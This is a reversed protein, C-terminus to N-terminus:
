AIGAALFSIPDPGFWLVMWGRIWSHISSRKCAALAIWKFCPPLRQHLGWRVNFAGDDTDWFLEGSTLWFRSRIWNSSCRWRADQSPSLEHLRQGYPMTLNWALRPCSFEPRHAILKIGLSGSSVTHEDILSNHYMESELVQVVRHMTPRDEPSSSVCQIAVSLLADLSELQVGECNLDIIERPRNETILFNLWGVINLGKEIFSADTPRKGSLVELVLVGFSYVDTKETARGSQMYQADWDLQESREHLAEDLSGGSLFDYILLKSM